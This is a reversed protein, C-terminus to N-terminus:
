EPNAIYKIPSVGLSKPTVFNEEPNLLDKRMPFGSHSLLWKIKRKNVYQKAISLMQAGTS